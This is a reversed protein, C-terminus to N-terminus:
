SAHGDDENATAVGVHRCLNPDWVAKVRQVMPARPGTRMSRKLVYVASFTGPEGSILDLYGAQYLRRVYTRATQVTVDVEDTRSSIALEKVNFGSSSMLMVRWMHDQGLGPERAPSGDGRVRPATPGPDSALYRLEPDAEDIAVIGARELRTLYARITRDHDRARDVVDKRRWRAGGQSLHRVAEWIGQQGRHVRTQVKTFVDIPRQAM